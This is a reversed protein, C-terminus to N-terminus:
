GRFVQELVRWTRRGLDHLNDDEPLRTTAHALAFIAGMLLVTAEAPDAPGRLLGLTDAQILCSRVHEHSREKFRDIRHRREPGAVLGLHDSLLLRSIDPHDSLIRIRGLFFTELAELPDRIDDTADAFLVGEMREVVADVIADMTDFHRFIAGPTIGVEDAINKATFRRSGENAIIRIAADM